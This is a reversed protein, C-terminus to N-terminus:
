NAYKFYVHCKTLSFGIMLDFTIIITKGKEKRVTPVAGENESANLAICKISSRILSATLIILNDAIKTRLFIIYPKIYVLSKNKVWRTYQSYCLVWSARIFICRKKDSALSRALLLDTRQLPLFLQYNARKGLVVFNEYLLVINIGRHKQTYFCTKSM